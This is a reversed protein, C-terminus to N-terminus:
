QGVGDGADRDITPGLALGSITSARDSTTVEFSAGSMADYVVVENRQPGTYAAFRGDPSFGVMGSGMDSYGLVAIEVGREIDWLRSGIDSDVMLFRGTPSSRIGWWSEFSPVFRDIEQGTARDIWYNRCSSAVPSDCDQVLIATDSAALPFGDALRRYTRRDPELEFVGGSPPGAVEPGDVSAAMRNSEIVTRSKGDAVSVSRWTPVSGGEFSAVWVHDPGDWALPYWADDALQLHPALPDSTPVVDIGGTEARLILWAEDALLPSGRTPFKTVVGSDLDIVSLGNGGVYLSLGTPEGLLPDGPAVGEVSALGPAAETTTTTPRRTTSSRPRSTTTPEDSEENQGLSQEVQGAQDSSRTLM